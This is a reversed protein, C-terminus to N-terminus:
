QALTPKCLMGTKILRMQVAECASEAAQAATLQAGKGSALISSHRKQLEQLLWDVKISAHWDQCTRFKICALFLWILCLLADADELIRCM